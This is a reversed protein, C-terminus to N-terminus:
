KICFEEYDPSTKWLFRKSPKPFLRKTWLWFEAIYGSMLKIAARRSTLFYWHFKKQLSITSIKDEKRRKERQLFYKSLLLYLLFSLCIPILYRSSFQSFCIYHIYDYCKELSRCWFVSWSTGLFEMSRNDNGSVFVKM